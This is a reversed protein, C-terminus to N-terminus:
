SFGHSGVRFVWGSLTPNWLKASEVKVKASEFRGVTRKLITPHAEGVMLGLVLNYGMGFLIEVGWWGPNAGGGTPPAKLSLVGYVARWVGRRWDSIEFRSDIIGGGGGDNRGLGEPRRPLGRGESGWVGLAM